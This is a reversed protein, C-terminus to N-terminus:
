PRGRASNSLPNSRKVTEPYTSTSVPSKCSHFGQGPTRSRCFLANPLRDWLSSSHDSNSAQLSPPFQLFLTM